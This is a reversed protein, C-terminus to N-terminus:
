RCRDNPLDPRCPGGVTPAPAPTRRPGHIALTVLVTGLLVAALLLAAVSAAPRAPPSWRPMGPDRVAAALAHSAARLDDLRRRCDACRALHLRTLVAPVPPLARHALLLLDLDREPRRRPPATM